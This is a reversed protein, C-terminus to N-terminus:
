GSRGISLGTPHRVVSSQDEKESRVGYLNMCIRHLVLTSQSAMSGAAAIAVRESREDVSRYAVVTWTTDDDFYLNYVSLGV